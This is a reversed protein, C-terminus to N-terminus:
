RGRVRSGEAQEGEECHQRRAISVPVEAGHGPAGLKRREEPEGEGAKAHLGAQKWHM